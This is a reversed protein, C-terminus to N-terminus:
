NTKYPVDDRQDSYISTQLHPGELENSNSGSEGEYNGILDSLRIKGLDDALDNIDRCLAPASSEPERTDARCSNFDGSSNTVSVWFGFTFTTGEDLMVSTFNFLTMSNALPHEIFVGVQRALQRHKVEL